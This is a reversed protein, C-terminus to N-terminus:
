RTWWRQPTRPHTAPFARRAADVALGVDEATAAAARSAVKGTFPDQATYTRANAARQWTGDILLHQFTNEATLTM